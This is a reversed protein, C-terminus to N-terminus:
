RRATEPADSPIWVGRVSELALQCGARALARDWDPDVGIRNVIKPPFGGRDLWTILDTARGEIVDWDGEVYASLLQEWTTQPDM